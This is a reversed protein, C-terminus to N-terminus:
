KVIEEIIQAAKVVDEMCNWNGVSIRITGQLGMLRHLWGACMNGVRLCVGKAGVMAGFDLVHMGDVYFTLLSADRSTVIHIKSNNSLRDYLYKILELNPRRSTLNDIAAPLGVIQTLPLTGAEFEEPGSNLVWSDQGTIKNVMGGGFKDPTFADPEKMYMIGLGTDAGIKHGSFCVFDAGWKEVNMTEHVVYQAADVVTIVEPNKERVLKILNQVDVARGIVNSMATIVVVDAKPANSVDYDFNKDLPWLCIDAGLATFPMRASHHDLDSVAVVPKREAFRPLNLILRAARNLSDTAGSTFIIQGSNNAGIFDAVKQRADAVMADVAAARPCIGRGSNAYAYELFDTEKEIVVGPKLASAAADLYIINNM